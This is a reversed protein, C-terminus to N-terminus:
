RGVRGQLVFTKLRDIFHLFAITAMVISGEVHWYMFDFNINYLEPISYRLIMYLGFIASPILSILLLSNWLFNFKHTPLYRKGFDSKRSIFKSLFYLLSTALVPLLVNYPNSPSIISVNQNDVVNDTSNDTYAQTKNTSNISGVTENKNDLIGNDTMKEDEASVVSNSKNLITNENDTVSNNVKGIYYTELLYYSSTKHDRDIGGKTEFDTTIDQGCWSDIELYRDHSRLYSTLDYVGNDFIVWCDETVNHSSVQETTFSNEQAYAPYFLQIFLLFSIMLISFFYAIKQKTKM